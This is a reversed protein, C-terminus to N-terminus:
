PVRCKRSQSRRGAVRGSGVDEARRAAAAQSMLGGGGGGGKGGNCARGSPNTVLIHFVCVHNYDVAIRIPDIYGIAPDTATDIYKRRIALDVAIVLQACTRM